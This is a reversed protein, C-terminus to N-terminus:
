DGSIAVSSIEVYLDVGWRIVGLFYQSSQVMRNSYKFKKYMFYKNYVSYSM